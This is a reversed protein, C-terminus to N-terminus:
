GRLRGSVVGERWHRMASGLPVALNLGSGYLVGHVPAPRNYRPVNGELTSLRGGSERLILDSAAIDWDRSDPSVLAADLTGEAIRAIRLALSPVKPMQLVPALKHLAEQMPKPGAVRANDLSATDPSTLPAGNLFAGAGLIASYTKAHAPAFVLGLVPEGADLLSVCVAWDPDGSLFARTGDIPDVVWVHRRTLRAPDDVTEESLWGADPLLESLRIKLFTDVTVDASTVPSGGAKAWIRATTPGGLRFDDLAIKGAELASIRVSDLLEPLSLPLAATIVSEKHLSIGWHAILL